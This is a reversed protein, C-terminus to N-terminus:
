QPPTPPLILGSLPKAAKAFHLTVKQGPVIGNPGPPLPPPADFCVAMQIWSGPELTSRLMSPGLFPMGFPLARAEFRKGSAEDVLSSPLLSYPRVNYKPDELEAATANVPPKALAPEVVQVSDTLADDAKMRLVVIAHSDDVRRVETVALKLGPLTTAVEGLEAARLPLLGLSFLFATVVLLPSNM